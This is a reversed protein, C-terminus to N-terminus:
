KANLLVDHKIRLSINVSTGRTQTVDIVYGLRACNSSRGKIDCESLSLHELYSLYTPNVLKDGANLSDRICM